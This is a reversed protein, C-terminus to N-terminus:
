WTRTCRGPRSRPEVARGARATQCRFGESILRHGELLEVVRLPAGGTNCEMLKCIFLQGIFAEEDVNVGM